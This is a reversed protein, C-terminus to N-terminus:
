LGSLRGLAANLRPGPRLCVVLPSRYKDAHCSAMAARPGIFVDLCRLGAFDRECDPRLPILVLLFLDMRNFNYNKKELGEIQALM